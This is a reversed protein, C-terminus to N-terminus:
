LQSGAPFCMELSREWVEGPATRNTFPYNEAQGDDTESGSIGYWPELCVYSAGSDPNSWIGWVPAACSIRVTERGNRDLLAATDFPANEFILADGDFLHETITICGDDLEVDLLEETLLGDADLRRSIMSGTEGSIARGAGGCESRSLRIKQGVRTGEEKRLPCAFAPHAGISFFMEKEDENHM